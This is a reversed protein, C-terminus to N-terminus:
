IWLFDCFDYIQQLGLYLNMFCHQFRQVYLYSPYDMTDHFCYYILSGCCPSKDVGFQLIEFNLSWPDKVSMRLLVNVTHHLATINGYVSLWYIHIYVLQMCHHITDCAFRGGALYTEEVYHFLNEEKENCHSLLMERADEVYRSCVWSGTLTCAIILQGAARQRNLCCIKSTLLNKVATRESKRDRITIKVCYQLSVQTDQVFSSFMIKVCFKLLLTLIDTHRVIHFHM